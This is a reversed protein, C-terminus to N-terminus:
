GASLKDKIDLYKQTRCYWLVTGAFSVAISILQLWGYLWSLRKLKDFYGKVLELNANLKANVLKSEDFRSQIKDRAALLLPMAQTLEKITPTGSNLDSIFKSLRQSDTKIADLTALFEVQQVTLTDIKSELDDSRKNLDFFFFM